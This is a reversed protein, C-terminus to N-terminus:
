PSAPLRFPIHVIAELEVPDGAKTAPQFKWQALARVANADLETDLGRVLQIGDVSGDRRIVAYLVIEGEVRDAILSQPYKPDVKRTPLPGALDTSTVHPGPATHLESFNLIWSGTPSNLNPMNVNLTYVRKSAFIQEPKAGPPLIAFNPPGTRDTSDDAVDSQSRRAMARPSTASLKAAGGLGSINTKAVPNGGSISIGVAGGNASGSADSKDGTSGNGPQGNPTGGPVGRHMGEPSISVRAALNGQPPQNVPAPPAPASSLAILTAPSDKSASPQSAGVEPAPGADGEQTRQAARPAANANIQLTPRAPANLAPVLALDAPQSTAGPLDPQPATVAVTAARRQRPRLEKLMEQSILLRPKAPAAVEQLQVVNPLNPLLKPAEMPAAPNVLTQRSHTPHVPDTFIRQRPHFADAGQPAPTTDSAKSSSPKPAQRPIELLPLDNIAGSWTLEVNDFAPNRRPTFASHPFPLAVLAVHWLAAAILALRPIRRAISCDKFFDPQSLGLPPPTREFLASVSSGTGQHFSGWEVDLHPALPGPLHVPFSFPEVQGLLNFPGKTQELSMFTLYLKRTRIPFLPPVNYSFEHNPSFLSLLM